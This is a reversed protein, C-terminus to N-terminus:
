KRGAVTHPLFNRPLFYPIVMAPLYTSSLQALLFCPIALWLWCLMHGVFRFLVSFHCHKPRVGTNRLDYKPCPARFCNGSCICGYCIILRLNSAFPVYSGTNAIPICIYRTGYSDSHHGCWELLHM